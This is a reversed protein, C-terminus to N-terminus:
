LSEFSNDSYRILPFDNNVTEIRGTIKGNVYIKGEIGTERNETLTAELGNGDSLTVYPQNNHSYPKFSTSLYTDKGNYTVGTDIEVFNYDNRSIDLSVRSAVLTDNTNLINAGLAMKINARIFSNETEASEETVEQQTRSDCSNDWELKQYCNRGIVNKTMDKLYVYGDPNNLRIDMLASIEQSDSTIKGDARFTLSNATIASHNKNEESWDTYQGNWHGNYQFDIFDTSSIGNAIFTINGHFANQSPVGEIHNQYILKANSLAIKLTNIQSVESNQYDIEHTIEDVQHTNQSEKKTISANLVALSESASLSALHHNASLEHLTINTNFTEKTTKCVDQDHCDQSAEEDIVTSHEYSGTAVLKVDNQDITYRDGDKMVTYGNKALFPNDQNNADPNMAEGIAIIADNVNELLIQTDEQALTAVLNIDESFGTLGTNLDGGDSAATYVTRIQKIFNKAQVVPSEAPKEIDIDIDINDPNLASVDQEVNDLKTGTNGNNKSHEKAQNIVNKTEAQLQNIVTKSVVLKGEANYEILDDINVAGNKRTQELSASLITAQLDQKDADTIAQTNTIDVSGMETIPKTLGLAKGIMANSNNVIEPTLARSGTLEIAKKAALNTLSNINATKIEGTTSIIALLKFDDPVTMWQGFEIPNGNADLCGAYDCKMQTGSHKTVVVMLAKGSPLNNLSFQGKENTTTTLLPSSCAEQSTNAITAECISVAGSKVIGKNVIGSTSVSSSSDSSPTNKKDSSGGCATLGLSSLVLIALVSKKM